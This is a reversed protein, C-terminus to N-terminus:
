APEERLLPLSVLVATGGSCREEVRLSGGLEEARERMSRLGIGTLACAGIGSGDDLVSVEVSGCNEAFLVSCNSADAHRVVNSVAEAVILVIAEEQAASLRLENDFDVTAYVGSSTTLREVRESVAASLGLTAIAPDGLSYVLRRVDAVSDHLATRARGLLQDVRDDRGAALHNRAADLELTLATLQPGLGDHLDRQIRRREQERATILRERAARLGGMLAQARVAAGIQAALADLLQRDPPVFSEAGRRHGVVLTGVREGQHVLDIDEAVDGPLVAGSTALPAGANNRVSAFPLRLEDTLAEVIADVATDPDTAAGSVRGLEAIVAYPDDRRGYFMRNIGSRVVVSLPGFTFMAVAAGVVSPLAKDSGVVAAVIIVVMAYVGLGVTLMAAVLVPRRIAVEIDFARWRVIAYAVLLQTAILQAIAVAPGLYAPSLAVIVPVVLGAAQVITLWRFTRRQGDRTRKWEVATYVLPLVGAIFGIALIPVDLGHGLVSVGTPNVVGPLTGDLKNPTTVIAGPRVASYVVTLGAVIGVVWSLVRQARTILRGTPLSIIGIGLIAVDIQWIWSFIWLGWDAGGWGRATAAGAYAAATGAVTTALGGILFWRGLWLDPRRTALWWGSVLFGPGFGAVVWEGLDAGVPSRLLIVVLPVGIALM